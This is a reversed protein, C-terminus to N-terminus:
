KPLYLVKDILGFLASINSNVTEWKAYAQPFKTRQAALLGGLAQSCILDTILVIGETM